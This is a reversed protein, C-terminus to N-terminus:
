TAAPAQGTQFVDIPFHRDHTGGAVEAAAAAIAAALAPDLLRLSANATAAAQKILALARIFARPLRRGSIPFNNVARQTQAGWLADAPVKLEGMSDREIRFESPKM